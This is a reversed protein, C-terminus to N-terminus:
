IYRCTCTCRTRPDPPTSFAMESSRPCPSTSRKDRVAVYLAKLFCVRFLKQLFIYEEQRKGGIFPFLLALFLVRISSIRVVTTGKEVGRGDMADTPSTLKVDQQRNGEITDNFIVLEGLRFGGRRGCGPPVGAALRSSKVAKV